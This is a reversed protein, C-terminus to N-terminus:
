ETWPTATIRYVEFWTEGGDNSLEMKWNWGDEDPPFFTIRRNPTPAPSWNSLVMNGAEDEAAQIQTFGHPIGKITWAIDWSETTTNWTRLNTGVLGGTPLWFDQIATGNGLCSFIWRAGKGPGWGSGDQALTEDEIKWDGLYRGFQELPGEMCGGNEEFLSATDDAIAPVPAFATFLLVTLLRKM